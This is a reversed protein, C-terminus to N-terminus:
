GTSEVRRLLDAVSTERLRDHMSAEARAFVGGLVEKIGCSVPCVRNPPNEHVPFIGDPEVAKLVADLAIKKPDRALKYGGHRGGQGSVFGAKALLGLIRRVVVPNTNVSGALRESTAGDEGLHALAVLVHLAVAYRSSTTM